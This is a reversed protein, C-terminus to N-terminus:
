AHEFLGSLPYQNQGSTFITWRAWSISWCWSISHGKRPMMTAMWKSSYNGSWNTSISQTRLNLLWMRQHDPWNRLMRKWISETFDSIITRLFGLLHRHHRFACNRDNIKFLLCIFTFISNSFIFTRELRVNKLQFSAHIFSFAVQQQLSSKSRHYSIIWSVSFVM